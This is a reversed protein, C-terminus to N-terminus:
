KCYITCKIRYVISVSFDCGVECHPNQVGLCLFLHFIKYPRKAPIGELSDSLNESMVVVDLGCPVFYQYAAQQFYYHAGELVMPQSHVYLQAVLTYYKLELHVPLPDM